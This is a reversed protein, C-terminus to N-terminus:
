HIAARRPVVTAVGEGRPDSAATVEGNTKDWLIAQMNGYQRGLIRISHGRRELAAREIDTFAGDEAEIADPLYQHHYRPLSLWSEPGSGAAFDFVGLLVM